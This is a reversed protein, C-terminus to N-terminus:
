TQDTTKKLSEKEHDVHRMIKDLVYQPLGARDINWILQMSAVLTSVMFSGTKLLLELAEETLYSCHEITDCGASLANKIGQTGHAHAAVKKGAKHAEEVVARMEEVTLQPSGTELGPTIVGGTAM